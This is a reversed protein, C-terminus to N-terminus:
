RTNATRRRRSAIPRPDDSRVFFKLNMPEHNDQSETIDAKTTSNRLVFYM